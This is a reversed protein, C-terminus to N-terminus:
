KVKCFKGNCSWLKESALQVDDWWNLNLFAIVAAAVLMLGHGDWIMCWLQLEYGRQARGLWPRVM